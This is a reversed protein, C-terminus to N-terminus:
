EGGEEPGRRDRASRREFRYGVGRVTLIHKPKSPDEELKERLWHVHVDITRKDSGAEDYGWIKEMLHDRSLVRNPNLALLKLLEFEKLTLEVKKGYLTVEHRDLDINLGGMAIVRKEDPKSRHREVLRLLANIRSALERTTFPYPLYEDAGVELGVVVDLEDKLESTLIIPVPTERRVIRCLEYSDVRHPSLEIVLIDPAEDPLKELLELEDTFLVTKYGEQDLHSQIEQLFGKKSHMLLVKISNKKILTSNKM